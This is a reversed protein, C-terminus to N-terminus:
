SVMDALVPSKWSSRVFRVKLLNEIEASDTRSSREGTMQEGVSVLGTGGLDEAESPSLDRDIYLFDM